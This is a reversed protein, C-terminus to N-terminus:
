SPASGTPSSRTTNNNPNAITTHKNSEDDCDITSAFREVCVCLQDVSRVLTTRGKMLNELAAQVLAESEADLATHQKHIDSTLNFAPHM